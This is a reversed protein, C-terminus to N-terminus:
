EKPDVVTVGRGTGARDDRQPEIHPPKRTRAEGLTRLAGAFEVRHRRHWQWRAVVALAAVIAVAIVTYLAVPSM